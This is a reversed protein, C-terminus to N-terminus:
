ICDEEKIVVKMSFTLTISKGSKKFAVAGPHQADLDIKCGICWSNWIGSFAVCSPIDKCKQICNEQTASRGRLDFVRNSHPDEIKPYGCKKNDM